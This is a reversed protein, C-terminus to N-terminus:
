RNEGEIDVFTIELEYKGELLEKAKKCYPCSQKTYMTVRGVQAFLSTDARSGVAARIGGFKLAAANASLLLMLLLLRM